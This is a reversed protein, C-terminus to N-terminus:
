HPKKGGTGTTHNDTIGSLTSEQTASSTSESSTFKSYVLHAPSKWCNRLHDEEVDPPEDAEDVLM